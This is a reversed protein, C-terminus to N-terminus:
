VETGVPIQFPPVVVQAGPDPVPLQIDATSSPLAGNLIWQRVAEIQEPPLPVGIQPMRDGEEPQLHGALKQYLFSEDPKGPVVRLKGAAAAAPNQAPVDVLNAYANYGDLVLGGTARVSSHCSINSCTPLFIDARLQDLTVAGPDASTGDNPHVSVSPSLSAFIVMGLIPLIKVFSRGHKSKM